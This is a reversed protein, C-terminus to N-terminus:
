WCIQKDCVFTKLTKQTLLRIAHTPIASNYLVCLINNDIRAAHCKHYESCWYTENGMSINRLSDEKKIYGCENEQNGQIKDKDNNLVDMVAQYYFSRLIDLRHSGSSARKGISQHPCRSMMYKGIPINILLLGLIGQDFQLSSPFNKPYCQGAAALVELLNKFSQTSFQEVEELSPTPGCLCCLQVDPILTVSIFRFAANPSKYPLFVPIDKSSSTNEVVALFSLLKLEDPCLSWWSETAVAIKGHILICSFMTDITETFSNLVSQINQNEPCLICEVLNVLDSSHKNSSDGCDLTDLLRDIIPYCTRLERKLREVNRQQKIEDFGVVLVMANFMSDLLKEFVDVTCGSAIGILVVSDHFEKWVVCHDQTETSILNILHSKSFM